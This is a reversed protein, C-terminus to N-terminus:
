AKPPRHLGDREGPALQSQPGFTLISRPVVPHSSGTDALVAVAACFTKCCDKKGAKGDQQIPKVKGKDLSPCHETAAQIPNDSSVEIQMSGHTAAHTMGSATSYPLLALSLMVALKLVILLRLYTTRVKEM